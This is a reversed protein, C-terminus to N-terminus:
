STNGKFLFRSMLSAIREDLEENEQKETAIQAERLLNSRQDLKEQRLQAIKEWTESDKKTKEIERQFNMHALALKTKPVYDEKALLQTLTQRAIEDLSEFQKSVGGFELWKILAKRDSPNKQLLNELAVAVSIVHMKAEIKEELEKLEEKRVPITDCIVDIDPQVELRKALM